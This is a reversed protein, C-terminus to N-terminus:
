FEGSAGGGAFDGGRELSFADSLPTPAGTQIAKVLEPMVLATVMTERLGKSSWEPQSDDVVSAKAARLREIAEDAGMRMRTKCYSCVTHGEDAAGCNVCNPAPAAQQPVPKQPQHQVTLAAAACAISVWSM